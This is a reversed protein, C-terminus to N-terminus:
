ADPQVLGCRLAYRVLGAIDYIELRRMIHARHTEVTKVSIKLRAAIQKTSRGEAVLQLVERQRTTLPIAGAPRRTCRLCAAVFTKAAAADLYIGGHMVAHVATRVEAATVIGFLLASAGVRLAERVSDDSHHDALVLLRADRTDRALCRLTELAAPEAAALHAVVVQPRTARALAVTEDGLRTKGVLSFEPLSELLHHIGARENESALMLRWTIATMRM